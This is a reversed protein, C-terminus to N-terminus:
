FLGGIKAALEEWWYIAGTIVSTIALIIATGAKTVPIHEVEPEVQVVDDPLDIPLPTEPKGTPAEPYIEAPNYPTDKIGRWKNLAKAAKVHYNNKRFGKGNYGMVFPITDEPTAPRDLADLVQLEDDLGASVIFNVAAELHNEADHMMATVMSMVTSYGALKYNFGMVQFAGFSCSKLAAAKNILVAKQLRPYSDRPYSGSKWSKYALGQKVAEDRQVGSLERYFIHPEFLMTPRGKSDFGDGLSEVDLVMHLVDEGVGIKAGVRPLDIDDLPKANGAFNM